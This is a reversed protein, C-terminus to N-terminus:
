WVGPVLRRRRASYSRYADGLARDLEAEEARIRVLVAALPLLVAVALSLWNDLALGLGVFALMQGTYSPHRLVGYPGNEVVHQGEQISLSHTFFRGLTVISWARLGLGAAMLTLGAVAPWSRGDTIGASPVDSALVISGAIGGTWGVIMVFYTPDRGGGAYRRNRRITVFEGLMWVALVVVFLTGAVGGRLM